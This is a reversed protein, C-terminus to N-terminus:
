ARSRTKETKGKRGRQSIYIKNIELDVKITQIWDRPPIFDYKLFNWMISISESSLLIM